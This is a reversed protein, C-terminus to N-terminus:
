EDGNREETEENAVHNIAVNSDIVVPYKIPVLKFRAKLTKEESGSVCKILVVPVGKGEESRETKVIVKDIIDFPLLVTLDIENSNEVVYRKISKKM